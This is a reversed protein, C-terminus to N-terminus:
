FESRPLRAVLQEAAVRAPLHDFLVACVTQTVPMELALNKSLERVVSACKVGEAVQGLQQLIDKLAYGAALMKGVRRNRSLDGTCTLVLDGYGALGMLTDAQGGLAVALRKIEAMGRVMLAARANLGLNLGDSIGTALAMVNKLAGGVEAGILDDTFYIRCAHHHMANSIKLQLDSTGGALVLAFPLHQVVEDAFSPGTLAGGDYKPQVQAVVQHPMLGTGQEFGKCLWCLAPWPREGWLAKIQLLTERLASMPVGLVWLDQEPQISQLALALDSTAHLKESLVAQSLYRPNTHTNNIAQVVQIDRGWLTVPHNKVIHNAVATGWAGAGFVVIRM